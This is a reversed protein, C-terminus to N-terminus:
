ILTGSAPQVTPRNASITAKDAGTMGTSNELTLRLVTMSSARPVKVSLLRTEANVSLKVTMNITRAM